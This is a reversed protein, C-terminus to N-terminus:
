ASPLDDEHTAMMQAAAIQQDSLEVQIVHDRDYISAIADRLKDKNIPLLLDPDEAVLREAIQAMLMGNTGPQINNAEGRLHKLLEIHFQEEHEKATKDLYADWEEQTDFGWFQPEYESV